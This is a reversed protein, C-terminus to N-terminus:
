AHQWQHPPAGTLPSPRQACKRVNWTVDYRLDCEVFYGVDFDIPMSGADFDALQSDSLWWFGGMPLRYTQCTSYLSNCDLYLLHSLPLDPCYNPIGLFNTRAHPFIRDRSEWQRRRNGKGDSARKFEADMRFRVFRQGAFMYWTHFITLSSRDTASPSFHAQLLVSMRNNCRHPLFKVRTYRHNSIVWGMSFRCFFLYEIQNSSSIRWDSMMIIAQCLICIILVQSRIALTSNRSNDQKRFSADFQRLQQEEHQRRFWTGSHQWETGSEDEVLFELRQVDLHLVVVVFGMLIAFGRVSLKWRQHFSHTLSCRAFLKTATLVASTPYNDDSATIVLKFCWVDNASVAITPMIMTSVAAPCM